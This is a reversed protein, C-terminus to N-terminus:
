GALDPKRGPGHLGSTLALQGLGDAGRRGVPLIVRTQKEQLRAAPNDGFRPKEAGFGDM